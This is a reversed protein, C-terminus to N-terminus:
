CFQWSKATEGLFFQFNFLPPPGVFILPPVSILSKLAHIICLHLTCSLLLLFILKIECYCFYERPCVQKMAEVCTVTKGTGPPGFIIYPCSGSSGAVINKVATLQEANDEIMPNYCSNLLFYPLLNVFHHYDILDPIHRYPRPPM